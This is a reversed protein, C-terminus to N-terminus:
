NLILSAIILTENSDFFMKIEKVRWVITFMGCYETTHSTLTIIDSLKVKFPCEIWDVLNDGVVQYKIM